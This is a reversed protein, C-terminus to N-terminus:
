LAGGCEPCTVPSRKGLQDLEDIDSKGEAMRVEQAIARPVADISEPVEMNVMAVLQEAMADIPLCYDVDVTEMANRPMDPYEADRPDQVLALGGRRKIAWLGASGDDLMGSLVIGTARPGHHLAASRFMVDISPRHRNERPGHSLRITTQDIILHQDPPAILVHGSRIRDGHRAARVSLKAARGLLEPLVSPSEPAVHVVVFIAAPYDEPLAALLTRLAIIGGASAGIVTVDRTHPM